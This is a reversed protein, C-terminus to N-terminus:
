KERTLLWRWHAGKWLTPENRDEASPAYLYTSAAMLADVHEKHQKSWEIAKNKWNIEEKM